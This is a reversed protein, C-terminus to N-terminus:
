PTLIPLFQKIPAPLTITLSIGSLLLAYPTGQLITPVVLYFIFCHSVNRFLRNIEAKGVHALLANFLFIHFFCKISVPYYRQSRIYICKFIIEFIKNSTFTLNNCERRTRSSYMKCQYSTANLSSILYYHLRKSETSRRM